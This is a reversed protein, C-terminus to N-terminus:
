RRREIDEEGGREIDEENGGRSTRMRRKHIWPEPNRGRGKWQTYSWRGGVVVVVAEEKEEEQEETMGRSGDNHCGVVQGGQGRCWGWIERWAGGALHSGQVAPDPGEGERAGDRTGCASVVEGLGM